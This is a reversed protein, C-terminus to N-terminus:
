PTQLQHEYDRHIVTTKPSSVLMKFIYLEVIADERQPQCHEHQPDADEVDEVLFPGSVFPGCSM